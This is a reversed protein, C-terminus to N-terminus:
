RGQRVPHSPLLWHSHSAYSNALTLGHLSLGPMTIQHCCCSSPQECGERSSQLSLQLLLYTLSHLEALLGQEDEILCLFKVEAEQIGDLGEHSPIVVLVLQIVPPGDEEEEPSKQAGLSTPLFLTTIPTIRLHAILPEPQLPPSLSALEEM